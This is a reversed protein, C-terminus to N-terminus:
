VLNFQKPPTITRAKTRQPAQENQAVIEQVHQPNLQSAIHTLQDQDFELADLMASLFAMKDNPDLFSKVNDGIDKFRKSRLLSAFPVVAPNQESTDNNAGSKTSDKKNLGTLKIGHKTCYESDGMATVLSDYDQTPNATIHAETPISTRTKAEWRSKIRTCASANDPIASSMNPVGLMVACAIGALRRSLKNEHAFKVATDLVTSLADDASLFDLAKSNFDTRFQEIDSKPISYFAKDKELQLIFTDNEFVGNPTFKTKVTTANTM